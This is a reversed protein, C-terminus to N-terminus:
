KFEAGKPDGWMLEKSRIGDDKWDKFLEHISSPAKTVTNNGKSDVIPKDILRSKYKLRKM